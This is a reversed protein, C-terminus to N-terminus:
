KNVFGNYENHIYDNSNTELHQLKCSLPYIPNKQFLEKNAKNISPYNITNMKTKTKIAPYIYHKNSIDYCSTYVSINNDYNKLYTDDKDNMLSTYYNNDNSYNMSKSSLKNKGYKKENKTYDYEYDNLNNSNKYYTLDNKIPKPTIPNNDGNLVDGIVWPHVLAERPTMREKPNWRFCKYLFDIFLYDDCKLANSLNKSNPLRQGRKTAYRLNSKSDFFENWRECSYNMEKPPLGLMEVFCSLQDKEDEGPFIPFGTYLEAAVCGLSWIDIATTYKSTGLIVEPSRYFRSQIYTYIQENEYCSSGFDIIKIDFKTHPKVLINEPKFDCHIIRHKRLTSLCKLLSRTIDKVLDLRFGRFNTKKLMDYLSPGLLEFLICLHHRFYFHDMMKVTQDLNSSYLSNQLNNLLKIETLAQQHFRKKNRIIKLAMYKQDKHDYAKVVQSFSGQGLIDIIEYRYAIHDGVVIKYLGEKDTHNPNLYSETDTNTTYKNNTTNNNNNNDDNDDNFCSTAKKNSKFDYNMNPIEKEDYGSDLSAGLTTSSRLPTQKKNVHGLYWVEDYKLIEKHEFPTLHHAFLKLVEKPSYPYSGSRRIYPKPDGSSSFKNLDDYNKSNYSEYNPATTLIGSPSLKREKVVPKNERDHISYLDSKKKLGLMRRYNYDNKNLSFTTSDCVSTKKQNLLSPISFKNNSGMRTILPDIQYDGKNKSLFKDKELIKTLTLHSIDPVLEQNSGKGSLRKIIDANESKDRSANAPQYYNTARKSFKSLTKPSTRTCSNADPGLGYIEATNSCRNGSNSSKSEWLNKLFQFSDIFDKQRFNDHHQQLTSTCM